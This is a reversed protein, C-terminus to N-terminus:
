IDMQSGQRYVEVEPGKNLYKFLYEVSSWQRVASRGAGGRVGGALRASRCDPGAKMKSRTEWAGTRAWRFPKRGRCEAVHTTAVGGSRVRQASRAVATEPAKPSETTM